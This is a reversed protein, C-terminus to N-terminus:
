CGCASFNAGRALSYPADGNLMSTCYVFDFSFIDPFLWLVASGYFYVMSVFGIYGYLYVMPVLATSGYFYVMFVFAIYGYLYVM